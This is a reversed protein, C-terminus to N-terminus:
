FISKHYFLNLILEAIFFNMAHEHFTYMYFGWGVMFFAIVLIWIPDNCLDIREQESDDNRFGFDGM